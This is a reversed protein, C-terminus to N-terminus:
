IQCTYCVFKYKFTIIYEFLDFYLLSRKFHSPVRAPVLHRREAFHVLGNLGKFGSNFGM